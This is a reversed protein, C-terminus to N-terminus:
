AEMSQALKSADSHISTANVTATGCSAQCGRVATVTEASTGTGAIQSTLLGTADAALTGARSAAGAASTISYLASQINGLSSADSVSEKVTAVASRLDNATRVGLQVAAIAPGITNGIETAKSQLTQLASTMSSVASSAKSSASNIFSGFASTSGGASAGAVAAAVATAANLAGLGQPPFQKLQLTFEQKRPRGQAAFVKQVEDVSEIAFSGLLKGYGDILSQPLGTAAVARMANIQTIGGRYETFIVGTLTISDAGPGTFQLAPMLGFRDQSAWRYETRRRLEQYAATSIAFQFSGLRMMVTAGLQLGIM